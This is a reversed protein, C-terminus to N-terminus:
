LHKLNRSIWDQYYLTSNFYSTGYCRELTIQGDPSHNDIASVIGLVFYHDKIKLYAPGGSDGKCIGERSTQDVTFFSATPDFNFATAKGIRLEGSDGQGELTEGYGAVPLWFRTISPNFTTVWTTPQYFAPLQGSFQVLAIDDNAQVESPRSFSKYNEHRIIHTVSHRESVAFEYNSTVVWLSSKDADVCHAATLIVNRAILTGTCRSHSSLNETNLLVVTHSAIEILEPNASDMTFSQGGVIAQAGSVIFTLLIFLSRPIM